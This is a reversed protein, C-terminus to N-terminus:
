SSATEHSVAEREFWAGRDGFDVYIPCEPVHGNLHTVVGPRCQVVEGGLSLAVRVRDGIAIPQDTPADICSRGHDVLYMPGAPGVSKYVDRIMQDLADVTLAPKMTEEAVDVEPADQVAAADANRDRYLARVRNSKMM